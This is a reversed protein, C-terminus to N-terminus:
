VNDLNAAVPREHGPGDGDAILGERKTGTRSIAGHESENELLRVLIQDRCRRTQHEFPQLYTVDVPITAGASIGVHNETDTTREMKRVTAEKLLLRMVRVQRSNHGMRGNPHPVALEITLRGNRIGAVVDRQPHLHLVAHSQSAKGCIDIVTV